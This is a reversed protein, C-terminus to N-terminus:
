LRFGLGAHAGSHSINSPASAKAGLRDASYGANLFLRSWLSYTGAVDYDLTNYAFITPGGACVLASCAGYVNPYWWLSGSVSFKRDLVPLKEIGAGLGGLHPFGYNNKFKIYGLGAYLKKDPNLQMNLHASFNGDMATFNQVPIYSYRKYRLEANMKVADVVTFESVGYFGWANGRLSGGTIANSIRPGIGSDFVVFTEPAPPETPIDAGRPIYPVQATRYADAPQAPMGGICAGVFSVLAMAPTFRVGGEELIVLVVCWLVGHRVEASTAKKGSGV